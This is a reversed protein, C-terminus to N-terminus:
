FLAGYSLIIVFFYFIRMNCLTLSFNPHLTYVIILKKPRDEKLNVNLFLFTPLYPFQNKCIFNAANRKKIM